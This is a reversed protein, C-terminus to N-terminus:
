KPKWLIMDTMECRTGYDKNTGSLLTLAFKGAAPQGSALNYEAIEGDVWVYVKDNNVLVAFNAEAHNGFKFRDTGRIKGIPRFMNAHNQAYLVKSRDLFIAYHDKNTQVGFVIGCGSIDPTTSATSWKLHAKFAFNSMTKGTDWWRYWNIQAWSESFDDLESSTGDTSTIYGKDVFTQLLANFDDYRQTAAVNPTNTPRPTATPLPTKTATPLPTNTPVPTSTPQPAGVSCALIVLMLALFAMVLKLRKAYM